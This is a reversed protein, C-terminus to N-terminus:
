GRLRRLSVTGDSRGVVRVTFRRRPSRNPCARIVDGEHLRHEPDALWHDTLAEIDEESANCTWLTGNPTTSERRLNVPNHRRRQFLDRFLGM